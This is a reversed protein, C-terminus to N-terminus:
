LHVNSVDIYIYIKYKIKKKKHGNAYYNHLTIWHDSNLGFQELMWVLLQTIIEGVKLYDTYQVKSIYKM